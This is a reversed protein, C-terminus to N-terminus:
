VREVRSPDYTDLCFLDQEANKKVSHITRHGNEEISTIHKSMAGAEEVTHGPDSGNLSGFGLRSQGELRRQIKEEETEEGSDTSKSSLRRIRSVSDVEKMRMLRDVATKTPPSVLKEQITEIVKSTSRFKKESGMGASNRELYHFLTSKYFQNTRLDKQGHLKSPSKPEPEPVLTNTPDDGDVDPNLESDQPIIHTKLHTDREGVFLPSQTWGCKRRSDFARKSSTLDPDNPQVLNCSTETASLDAKPVNQAPSPPLNPEREKNGCILSEMAVEIGLIRAARTQLPENPPIEIAGPKELIDDLKNASHEPGTDLGVFKVEPDSLDQNKNVLSIHVGSEREEDENGRPHIMQNPPVSNLVDSYQRNEQPERIDASYSLPNPITKLLGSSMMRKVPGPSIALENIKTETEQNRTEPIASENTPKVSEGKSDRRQFPIHSQPYDYIFDSTLELSKVRGSKFVPVEPIATRPQLGVRVEQSPEDPKYHKLLADADGVTDAGDGQMQQESEAVEGDISSSSSSSGEEQEQLEKNFSELQSIVDWPRRSVPKLLFQGFLEKSNCPASAEGKVIQGKIVPKVDRENVDASAGYPQSQGANSAPGQITSSATRSFASSSSPSFYMQGKLNGTNPRLKWDRPPSATPKLAESASLDSLQPTPDSVKPVPLENHQSEMKKAPLFQSTQSEQTVTTQTQQDRYQDGPWSGSYKLERHKTPHSFRLDNTQKYQKPGGPGQKQLETKSAMNGTLAQLELDTSSMSLLSQEQLAGRKDSGNKKDANQKLDNNNRDTDPLHPESKVPVSVLCFVTENVKKKSSKKTQIGTQFTKLKTITECTSEWQPIQSSVRGEACQQRSSEKDPQQEILVCNDRQDPLACIERDPSPAAPLWGLSPEYIAPDRESKTALVQSEPHFFAGDDQAQVRAPGQFGSPGTTYLNELFKTEQNFDQHHAMKIHRIRPDSFPIYQVSSDRADMHQPHGPLGRPPCVSAGYQNGSRYSSPSSYHGAIAKEMLQQQQQQQQTHDGYQFHPVENLFHPNTNQHPPSRYSPPPVYMPPELNPDPNYPDQRPENTKPLFSICDKQYNDQYRSTEVGGRTQRHLEYSPPKLPRGYKPKQLPIYPYGKEPNRLYELNSTSNTPYFLMKADGQFHYDNILIPMEVCRLTDPSLVRPLSQSKGKNQSNFTNDGKTFSYLDQLLKEGDGDSMQRGLRRPQNWSEFNANQWKPDGSVKWSDELVARRMTNELRSGVELQGERVNRSMGHPEAM